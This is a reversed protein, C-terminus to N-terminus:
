YKSSEFSHFKSTLHTKGSPYNLCFFFVTMTAASPLPALPPRGLERGTGRKSGFLGCFHQFYNKVKFIRCSFSVIRSMIGVSMQQWDFSSFTLRWPPLRYFNGSSSTLSPPLPLLFHRCIYQLKIMNLTFKLKKKCSSGSHLIKVAVIVNAM